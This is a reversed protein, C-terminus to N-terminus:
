WVGVWVEPVGETDAEIRIQGRSYAEADLRRGEEDNFTWASIRVTEEAEIARVRHHYWRDAGVPLLGITVDEWDSSGENRVLFREDDYEVSAPLEMGMMSPPPADRQSTLMISGVVLAILGMWILLWHTRSM